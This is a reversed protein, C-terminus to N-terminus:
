HQDLEKNGLQDQIHHKLPKIVDLEAEYTESTNM